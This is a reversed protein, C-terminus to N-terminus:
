RLRRACWFPLTSRQRLPHSVAKCICKGHPGGTRFFCRKSFVGMLARNTYKTSQFRGYQVPFSHEFIVM